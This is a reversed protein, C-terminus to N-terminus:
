TDGGPLDLVIAAADARQWVRRVPYSTDHGPVALTFTLPLRHRRSVSLMAGTPSMDRVICPVSDGDPYQITAPILVDRREGDRRNVTAGVPVGGARSGMREMGAHASQNRVAYPRCSQCLRVMGGILVSM